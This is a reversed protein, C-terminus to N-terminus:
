AICSGGLAGSCLVLDSLVRPKVAQFSVASQIRRRDYCLDSRWGWSQCTGQRWSNSKEYPSHDDVWPIDQGHRGQIRWVIQCMVAERSTKTDAVTPHTGIIGSRKPACRQVGCDPAIRLATISHFGPSWPAYWTKGGWRFFWHFWDNFAMHLKALIPYGLWKM